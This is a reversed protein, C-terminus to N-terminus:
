LVISQDRVNLATSQVSKWYPTSITTNETIQGPRHVRIGHSELATAFEEVDEKIEDVIRPELKVFPSKSGQSTVLANYKDSHVYAKINDWFFMKFSSDFHYGILGEARGVVVEKLTTWEDFSHM